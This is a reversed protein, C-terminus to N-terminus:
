GWFPPHDGEVVDDFSITGDRLTRILLTTRKSVGYRERADKIHQVVTEQHLGLIRGVEWDTKGRAIWLLCDRQRDTLPVVPRRARRNRLRRAGEFAFAGALQALPMNSEPAARDSRTAFSCSGHLEGPVNAPVTFGDGIGEERAAALIAKDAGTLVVLRDVDRWRFGISTAQSARHIPDTVALRHDDFYNVWRDPYNHLRIAAPDSGEFAVHHTLAFYDYGMRTTMESLVAALDSATEAADVDAIFANIIARMGM